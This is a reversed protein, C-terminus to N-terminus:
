KNSKLIEVFNYEYDIGFKKDQKKCYSEPNDWHKIINDFFNIGHSSSTVIQKSYKYFCISKREIFYKAFETGSLKNLQEVSEKSFELLNM